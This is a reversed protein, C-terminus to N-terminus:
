FFFVTKAIRTQGYVCVCVCCVCLSRRCFEHLPAAAPDVSKPFHLMPATSIHLLDAFMAASCWCYATKCGFYNKWKPCLDVATSISSLTWNRNRVPIICTTRDVQLAPPSVAWARDKWTSPCCFLFCSRSFVNVLTYAGIQHQDVSRWNQRRHIWSWCMRCTCVHM